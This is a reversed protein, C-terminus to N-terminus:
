GAGHGYLSKTNLRLMDKIGSYQMRRSAESLGAHNEPKKKVTIFAYTSPPTGIFPKGIILSGGGQHPRPGLSKMRAKM